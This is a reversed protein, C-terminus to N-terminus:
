RSVMSDEAISQAKFAMSNWMVMDCKDMKELVDGNKTLVIDGTNRDISLVVGEAFTQIIKGGLYQTRCNPSFDPDVYRGGMQLAAHRIRNATPGNKSFSLVQLVYNSGVKFIEQLKKREEVTIKIQRMNKNKHTLKEVKTPRQIIVVGCIYPIIKM